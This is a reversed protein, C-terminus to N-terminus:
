LDGRETETRRVSGGRGREAPALFLWAGDDGRRTESRATSLFDPLRSPRSWWDLNQLPHDTSGAQGRPTLRRFAKPRRGRGTATAANPRARMWAADPVSARVDSHVTSRRGGVCVLLSLSDSTRRAHRGTQRGRSRPVAEVPPLDGGGERIGPACDPERSLSALSYAPPKPSTSFSQSFKKSPHPRKREGQPLSLSKLM